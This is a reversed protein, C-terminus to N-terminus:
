TAGVRVRGPQIAFVADIAAQRYAADLGDKGSAVNITTSVNYTAAPKAGATGAGERIM